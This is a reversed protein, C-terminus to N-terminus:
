KETQFFRTASVTAFARPDHLVFVDLRTSFPIAFSSSTM